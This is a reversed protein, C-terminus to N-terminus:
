KAVKGTGAAKRPRREGAALGSRITAEAEHQPLGVELAPALLARWAVGEDLAGGGVLTGLAFAADNLAQNRMGVVARRVKAAEGEVAALVYREARPVVRTERLERPVPSPYMWTPMPALAALQEWSYRGGSVHGSPPAVVYGGDGRVDIGPAPGAGPLEGTANPLPRGGPHRYYLHRGGGGTTASLTAPLGYGSARLRELSALGGHSPDIDVVLLGSRGGTPL